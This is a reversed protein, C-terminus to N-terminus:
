ETMEFVAETPPPNILVGDLVGKTQAYNLIKTAALYCQEDNMICHVLSGVFDRKEFVNLKDFQKCIAM